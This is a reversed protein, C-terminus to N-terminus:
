LPNTTKTKPKTNHHNQITPFKQRHFTNNTHDQNTIKNNRTILMKLTDLENDFAELKRKLSQIQLLGKESIKVKQKRNNLKQLNKTISYCVNVITEPELTDYEEDESDTEASSFESSLFDVKGTKSLRKFPLIAEGKISRSKYPLEIKLVLVGGKPRKNHSPSCKFTILVNAKGSPSFTISKCRLAFPKDGCKECCSQLEVLESDKTEKYWISFEATGNNREPITTSIPHLVHRQNTLFNQNKLKCCELVMLGGIHNTVFGNEFTIAITSEMAQIIHNHLSKHMVTKIQSRNM